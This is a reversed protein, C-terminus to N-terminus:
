KREWKISLWDDVIQFSSPLPLVISCTAHNHSRIGLKGSGICIPKWIQPILAHYTRRFYYFASIDGRVQIHDSNTLIWHVSATRSWSITPLSLVSDIFTRCEAGLYESHMASVFKSLLRLLTKQVLGCSPYCIRFHCILPQVHSASFSMSISNSVPIHSRMPNSPQIFLWFFNWCTSDFRMQWVIVKGKWEKPSVGRAHFRVNM